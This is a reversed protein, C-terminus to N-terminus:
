AGKKWQGGELREGERLRPREAWQQRLTKAYAKGETHHERGWHLSTDESLSRGSVKNGNYGQFCESHCPPGFTGPPCPGQTDQVQQTELMRYLVQSLTLPSHQRAQNSHCTEPRPKDSKGTPM